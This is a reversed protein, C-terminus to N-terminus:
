TLASHMCQVIYILPNCQKYLLATYYSCERFATHLAQSDLVTALNGGPINQLPDLIGAGEHQRPKPGHSHLSFRELVHFLSPEYVEVRVLFSESLHHSLPTKDRQGIGGGQSIRSHGSICRGLQVSRCQGPSFQWSAGNGALINHLPQASAYCSTCIRGHQRVGCPRLRGSRNNRHPHSWPLLHHTRWLLVRLLRGTPHPRSADVYRLGWLLVGAHLQDQLLDLSLLNFQLLISPDHRRVSAHLLSRGRIGIWHHGLHVGSLTGHLTGVLRGKQLLLSILSHHLHLHQCWFLSEHINLAHSSSLLLLLLSGLGSCHVLLHHPCRLIVGGLVRLLHRPM